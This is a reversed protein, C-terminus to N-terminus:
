RGYRRLDVEPKQDPWTECKLFDLATPMRCMLNRGSIEIWPLSIAVELKQFCVATM